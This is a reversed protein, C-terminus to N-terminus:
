LSCIEQISNSNHHVIQALPSKQCDFKELVPAFHLEEQWIFAKNAGKM